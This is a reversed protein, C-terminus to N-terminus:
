PERALRYTYPVDCIGERQTGKVAFTAPFRQGALVRGDQDVVGAALFFGGSLAPVAPVEFDISLRGAPGSLWEERPVEMIWIPIDGTGMVIVRLDGEPAAAIDGVHLTLRFWLTAGPLVFDVDDGGQTEAVRLDELTLGRSTTSTALETAGLGLLGRLVGTAYIPHGEAAIRGSDLVLARDCIREVLGLAHTVFLITRGEAQFQEIKGLCKQQFHEDGVALVEDVLLIDPDVNVAVAFGLRMYMGSSYHKVANDIFDELESFAVIDDFVRDVERRSLGLLSANLYVNDRGSLEGNFGAGLELLSAIRGGVAVSGSTPKLIGSLVKLLTSKGSGNAGILGVTEGHRIEVDIDRLAWFEESSHKQRLALEKLSTARSRYSVFRKSVKRACLALDPSVELGEAM